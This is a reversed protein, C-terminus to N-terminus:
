DKANANLLIEVAKDENQNKAYRLATWANRNVINVNAKHAILLRMMNAHGGYSARMLPTSTFHNKINPDASYKLLVEACETCNISAAIFLPTEGFDNTINKDFGNRLLLDIIFPRKKKAALHLVTNGAEDTQNIGMKIEFLFNDLIIEKELRRILEEALQPSPRVQPIAPPPNAKRQASIKYFLKKLEEPHIYSTIESYKHKYVALALPASSSNNLSEVKLDYLEEALHEIESQRYHVKEFLSHCLFGEQARSTLAYSFFMSFLMIAFFLRATSRKM